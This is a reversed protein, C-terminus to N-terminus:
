GRVGHHQGGHRVGPVNRGGFAGPRFSDLGPAPRRDPASDFPFFVLPPSVMFWRAACVMAASQRATITELVPHADSLSGVATGKGGVAGEVELASGVVGGTRNVLRVKVIGKVAVTGPNNLGAGV